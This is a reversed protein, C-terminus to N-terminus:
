GLSHPVDEGRVWATVAGVIGERIRQSLGAHFGASHPSVFVRENAGFVSLDTPEDPFVDLCLGGLRNEQVAELAARTDVLRGRATNVLVLRPSCDALISRSILGETTPNLDCHLTLADCGRAMESLSSTTLGDPVGRPDAGWVEAGVGSLRRAVEQGIVGLGVVGIRSSQLLRPALQPLNKRGWHGDSAWKDLVGFGRLGWILMGTTAEVVADRRAEPLRCVTVGASRMLNLDIHDTGSTTTILLKMSPAADLLARGAPIKSHLVVVEADSRGQGVEVLDSLARAEQLADESTEYPSWGWRSLRM